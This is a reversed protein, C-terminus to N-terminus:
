SLTAAEDRSPVPSSPIGADGPRKAASSGQRRLPCERGHGRPPQANRPLPQGRRCPGDSFVRQLCLSMDFTWFSTSIATSIPPTLKIIPQLLQPLGHPEGQAVGHAFGHAFGHALGQGFGQLWGFGQPFGQALGHAGAGQAGAGQEGQPYDARDSRVRDVVPNARRSARRTFVRPGRRHAQAREAPAGAPPQHPPLRCPPFRGRPLAGRMRRAPGRSPGARRRPRTARRPAFHDPLHSEFGRSTAGM